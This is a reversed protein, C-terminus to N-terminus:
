KNLHIKSSNPRLHREIRYKAIPHEQQKIQSGAVSHVPHLLAQVRIRGKM